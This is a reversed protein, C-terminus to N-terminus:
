VIDPMCIRCGLLFLKILLSKQHFRTYFGHWAFKVSDCFDMMIGASLFLAPLFLVPYCSSLFVPFHSLFRFAGTSLSYSKNWDRNRVWMKCILCFGTRFTMSGQVFPKVLKAWEAWTCVIWLGCWRVLLRTFLYFGCYNIYKQSMVHLEEKHTHTHTHTHTHPPPHWGASQCRLLLLVKSVISYMKDGAADHSTSFLKLYPYWVHLCTFFSWVIGQCFNLTLYLIVFYTHILWFV